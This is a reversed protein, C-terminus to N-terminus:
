APLDSSTEGSNEDEPSPFNQLLEQLKGYDVPHLIEILDVPVGCLIALMTIERVRPGAAETDGLLDAMEMNAKVHPEVMSLAPYRVGGMTRSRFLPFTHVPLGKENTTTKAEM